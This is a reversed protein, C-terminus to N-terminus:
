CHKVTLACLCRCCCYRGLIAIPKSIPAEQEDLSCIVFSVIGLLFVGSVGDDDDDDDGDDDRDIKMGTATHVVHLLKQSAVLTHFPKCAIAINVVEDSSRLTFSSAPVRTEDHLAELQLVQSLSSNVTTSVQVRVAGGTESCCVCVCVSV